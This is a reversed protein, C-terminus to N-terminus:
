DNKDGIAIIEYDELDVWEIRPYRNPYSDNVFKAKIYRPNEVTNIVELEELEKCYKKRVILITANM